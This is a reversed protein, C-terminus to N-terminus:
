KQLWMFAWSTKAAIKIADAIAWPVYKLPCVLLKARGVLEPNLVNELEDLEDLEPDKEPEPEDKPDDIWVGVKGVAFKFLRIPPEVEEDTVAWFIAEIRALVLASCDPGTLLM